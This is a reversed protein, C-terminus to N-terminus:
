YGGGGGSSSGSSSGWASRSVMTGDASVVYWSAGFDSLGQGSADSPKKDNTFWYLPHGNYTLQPLGDSRASTGIKSATIGSGAVPKGAVRAPPWEAACAGTCASKTGKDAQFLYLTRGQRDVLIRGLNGNNAGGGDATQGEPPAAATAASAGGGGGCGTIAVAILPVAAAAALFEIPKRRSMSVGETTHHLLRRPPASGERVGRQAAPLFPPTRADDISLAMVLRGRRRSRGVSPSM